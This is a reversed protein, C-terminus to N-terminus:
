EIKMRKSLWEVLEQTPYAVKRNLFVRTPGEGRSDINAMTGSCILGGTFEGIKERSM